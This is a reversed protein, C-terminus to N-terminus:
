SDLRLRRRSQGGAQISRSREVPTHTRTTGTGRAARIEDPTACGDAPITQGASAVRLTAAAGVTKGTSVPVLAPATSRILAEQQGAVRQRLLAVLTVDLRATRPDDPDTLRVCAALAASVLDRDAVLGCAACRHVRQALPKKQRHGCVCHQSLATQGTGARVLRGGAACAERGLATVLMGPSFLAIRRGWLHAWSSMNVHEVILNPGHVRVIQGAIDRARHKKAQSLARCEAAHLARTRRYAASLNDHRYARKPRGLTDSARAGTPTDITRAPLGASQRRAARVAQRVSPRYQDPNTNRRSRDLARQRRRATAAADLAGTSQQATVTVYSSAVDGGATAPMSVVALNSVNGDVGAVRDRPAAARDAAVASSTWGPALVMLHAYYRWGGPARHDQVRTLDIKHWVSPEALFHRLRPWRRAGQPLRVPLVLDGAPLGTFVVALPGEYQWWGGEPKVPPPMVAPQTVASGLLRAPFAAAHGDLAGVLRFTEWTRPKTHSKARGPIRTFDFWQGARPRGHRRGSSDPFLHRDCSEWVEDALHMALAKTLHERMWRSAEVHRCVAAELMKRSLGFRARAAKADSARLRPAAWHADVRSRAQLQAARRLRFAAMFMKEVRRRARADSADLELRM